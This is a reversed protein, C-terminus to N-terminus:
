PVSPEFDAQFHHQETAIRGRGVARIHCCCLGTAHQILFLDVSGEGTVRQLAEDTIAPNVRVISGPLREPFAMADEHGIRTYLFDHHSRKPLSDLRPPETWELLQSLPVTDRPLAGSPKRM